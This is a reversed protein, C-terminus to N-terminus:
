KFDEELIWIQSEIFSPGTDSMNRDTKSKERMKEILVKSEIYQDEELALYVRRYDRSRRAFRRVWM